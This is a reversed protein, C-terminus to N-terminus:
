GHKIVNALSEGALLKDIQEDTLTSADINLNESKKPADIGLIDCRKTICNLVGKLFEPNGTQGEVRKTKRIREPVIADGEAEGEKPKVKRRTGIQETIEIEANRQSREWAEWYTVELRDLKALEIAKKQDIHNVSRELWEKRLEALDRSITATDVGMAQAIDSMYLGRLYMESVKQRRDTIRTKDATSVTM